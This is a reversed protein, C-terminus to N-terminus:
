ETIFKQILSQQVIPPVLSSIDGNLRAIERVMTSSIFEDHESPMLFISELEPSLRRNIRALQFEYEFDSVTRLGRLIVSAHQQKAFDILLNNFGIVKINLQKETVSRLLEIREDLSFLPKKRVNEAVGIVVYEYLTSARKILDLHGNTVPDFTGPYIATIQM